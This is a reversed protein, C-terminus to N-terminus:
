QGMAQRYVVHVQEACRGNFMTDMVLQQDAVFTDFKARVSSQKNRVYGFSSKALNSVRGDIRKIYEALKTAVVACDEESNLISMVNGNITLLEDIASNAEADNSIFVESELSIPITTEELEVNLAEPTMTCGALGLICLVLVVRM